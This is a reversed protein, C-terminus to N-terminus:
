DDRFGRGDMERVRDDLNRRVNGRIDAASEHDEDKAKQRADKRGERRGMLVAGALAVLAAGIVALWRGVRTGLLWGMM